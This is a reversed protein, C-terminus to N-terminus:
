LWYALLFESTAHKTRLLKPIIKSSTKRIRRVGRGCFHVPCGNGVVNVISKYPVCLM